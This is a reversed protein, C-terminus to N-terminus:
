PYAAPTVLAALTGWDAKMGKNHVPLTPVECHASTRSAPAKRVARASVSVRVRHEAKVKVVAEVM